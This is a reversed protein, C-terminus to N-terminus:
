RPVEFLVLNGERDIEVAKYEEVFEEINPCNTALVFGRLLRRFHKERFNQWEADSAARHEKCFPNECVYFNTQNM